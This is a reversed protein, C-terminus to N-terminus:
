TWGEDLWGFTTLYLFTSASSASCRSRIRASTDTVIQAQAEAGSAIGAAGHAHGVIPTAVINHDPQDPDSLLVRVPLSAHGGTSVGVIATFKRGTPVRLTRLVATTGPDTVSIDLAPGSLMFRTKTQLFPLIASSARIISGICRKKTYNTPLTPASPSTSFLADVVGTDPRQILFVHYTTNAISGTDLGGQTTGVAWAADLRKTLSTLLTMRVRDATAADDSSAEGIAIDIDNTPDIGNNALTLGYKFGPLVDGLGFGATGLPGITVWASNAANRIKLLGTTTDAWLQYAFMTGPETAGSSLSALAALADNLDARVTAGSGNAVTMDHQSM